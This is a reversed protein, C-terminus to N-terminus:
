VVIQSTDEDRSLLIGKIEVCERRTYQEQEDLLASNEKVM